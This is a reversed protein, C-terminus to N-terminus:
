KLLEAKKQEFEEQTIIGEDLLQKYARIADANSVLREQERKPAEAENKNMYVLVLACCIIVILGIVVMLVSRTEM